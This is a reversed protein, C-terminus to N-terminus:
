PSAPPEAAKAEYMSRDSRAVVAEASDGPRAESLGISVSLRLGPAISEWDFAAIAARM